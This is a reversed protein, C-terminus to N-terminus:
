SIPLRMRLLTPGRLGMFGNLWGSLGPLECGGSDDVVGGEVDVVPGDVLLGDVVPGDVV